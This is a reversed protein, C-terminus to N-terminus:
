ENISSNSFSPNKLFSPDHPETGVKESHRLIPPAFRYGDTKFIRQTPNMCRKHSVISAIKNETATEKKRDIQRIATRSNKGLADIQKSARKAIGSRTMRKGDFGDDHKRIM